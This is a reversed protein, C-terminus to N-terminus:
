LPNIRGLRRKPFYPTSIRMLARLADLLTAANVSLAVEGHLAILRAHVRQDAAQVPQYMMLLAWDTGFVTRLVSLFRQLIAQTDIDLTDEPAYVAPGRHSMNVTYLTHQTTLERWLQHLAEPLSPCEGVRERSDDWEVEAAWRTGDDTGAAEIRLRTESNTNLAIEGLAAQWSLWASSYRFDVPQIIRTGSDNMSFDPMEDSM